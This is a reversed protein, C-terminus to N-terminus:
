NPSPNEAVLVFIMFSIKFQSFIKMGASNVFMIAIKTIKVTGTSRQRRNM